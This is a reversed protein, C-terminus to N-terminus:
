AQELQKRQAIENELSRARQRLAVIERLQAAPDAPVSEAPIVHSHARCVEDFLPLDSSRYFNGMAYACLLTFSSQRALENWMEDLAGGVRARFRDWDPMGDVMLETLLTAADMLLLRGTAVEQEVDVGRLRLRQTFARSHAETAVIVVPEGAAIGGALFQAVQDSLKGEHEYFQVVHEHSAAALAVTPSAPPDAVFAGDILYLVPNDIM